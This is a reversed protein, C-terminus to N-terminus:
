ISIRLGKPYKNKIVNGDGKGFGLIDGQYSIATYGKYGPIALVNGSLFIPLQEKTLEVVQKFHNIMDASMFLHQHPEFRNKVIEGCLIGQRLVKMSGLDYFPAKKMYVKENKVYLPYKRDEIIQFLGKQIAPELVSSKHEKRRVRVAEGHKQFKAIFHGEGQDMPFIRRVKTEDMGPHPFGCRGFSVGCDIQEMDPYDALFQAVVQENEEMAYTCTSYVLIGEPKLAQYASHLIQIQRKGCAQVHEYSWADMAASHKKFMGEGSCPADVLVKDFWGACQKCLADPHANTIIAESIGLREMNSLLIQARKAEIENSVLLGSHELRAAIQTSKGGPAACLDLVSDGPKPALIEVASGASPEQMYFAGALHLPHNGLHAIDVDIYFSGKAFPTARLPYPFKKQFESVDQKLTNVRLGRFADEQLTAEYAPYEDKLMDKMRTLFESKM